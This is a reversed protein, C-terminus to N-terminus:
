NDEDSSIHIKNQILAQANEPKPGQIKYNRQRIYTFHGLRISIKVETSM